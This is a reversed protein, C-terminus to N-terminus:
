GSSKGFNAAFTLFDEFDVDGDGDLDGLLGGTGGTKMESTWRVSGDEALTEAAGNGNEDVFARFKGASIALTGNGDPDATLTGIPLGSESLTFLFATETQM